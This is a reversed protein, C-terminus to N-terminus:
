QHLLKLSCASCNSSCPHSQKAYKSQPKQLDRTTKSNGDKSWGPAKFIYSFSDKLCSSRKLDHVLNKWEYFTIVFPNASNINKTLGYQPTRIEELCTGFLRDWIMLVGAHNKGLYEVDSGHHVRHHSPTNFVFEIFRPLKKIADTHLWFQYIVNLSKTFLLM